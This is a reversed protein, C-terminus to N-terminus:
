ILFCGLQVKLDAKLVAGILPVMEPDEECVCWLRRSCAIPVWCVMDFTNPEGIGLNDVTIPVWCAMELTNKGGGCNGIEM